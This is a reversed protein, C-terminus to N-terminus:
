RNLADKRRITLTSRRVRFTLLHARDTKRLTARFKYLQWRLRKAEEHSSCEVATPNTQAKQLLFQFSPYSM